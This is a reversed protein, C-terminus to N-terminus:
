RDGHTERARREEVDAWQLLDDALQSDHSSISHAYARIAARSARAHEDGHRKTRPKLVFYKLELPM